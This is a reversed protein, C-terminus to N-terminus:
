NRATGRDALAASAADPWSCLSTGRLDAFGGKSPCCDSRAQLFQCPAELARFQKGPRTVSVLCRSLTREGPLRVAPALARALQKPLLTTANFAVRSAPQILSRPAAHLLCPKCGFGSGGLGYWCMLKSLWTLRVAARGRSRRAERPVCCALFGVTLLMVVPSVLAVPDHPSVGCLRRHLIRAAGPSAAVGIGMGPLIFRAGFRFVLRLVDRSDAGPSKRPKVLCEPAFTKIGAFTGAGEPRQRPRPLDDPCFDSVRLIARLSCDSAACTM